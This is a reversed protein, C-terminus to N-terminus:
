SLKRVSALHPLRRRIHCPFPQCPLPALLPRRAQDSTVYGLKLQLYQTLVTYIGETAMGARAAWGNWRTYCAPCILRHQWVPYYKGRAVSVSRVCCSM